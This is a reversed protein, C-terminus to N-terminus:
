ACDECYILQKFHHFYKYQGYHAICYEKNNKCKACFYPPKFCGGQGCVMDIMEFIKYTVLKDFGIKRLIKYVEENYIEQKQKQKQKQKVVILPVALQLPTIKENTNSYWNGM